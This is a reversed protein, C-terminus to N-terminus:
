RHHVHHEKRHPGPRPPRPDILYQPDAHPAPAALHVETHATAGPVLDQALAHLTGALEVLDATPLDPLDLAVTVGRTHPVPSPSPDAM